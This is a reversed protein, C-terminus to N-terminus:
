YSFLTFHWRSFCSFFVSSRLCNTTSPLPEPALRSRGRTEYPTNKIPSAVPWWWCATWRPALFGSPGRSSTDGRFRQPHGPRRRLRYCWARSLTLFHLLLSECKQQFLRIDTTQLRIDPNGIIKNIFIL